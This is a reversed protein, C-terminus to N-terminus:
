DLRTKFKKVALTLMVAAFAALALAPGRMQAFAIGKLFLGRVIVLFYRAPIAYTIAQVIKPMSAIPSMFGSLMIAPLMSSIMALQMAVQQQRAVVSILLGQSLAGILFVSSMLYLLGLNGRIPVDFLVVGAAAVLTLQGLGILYYPILKGILIEIPKVPTVLLQEMTGREWERAVTLAMLIAALMAMIVAVLGPVLYWQSKLNPNFWNRAKVVVPPKLRAGLTLGQADLASVALELTRAQAVAAAFGIAISAVNADTGDVVLQATAAEGQSLTRGLGPAIVLAAKAQGLHFAQQLGDADDPRAVVTFTGTREFRSVLDRSEPTRDGDVVIMKIQDIDMTLAYGFLMLLVLPVGFAMYLTRWDRLIHQGEKRAVLFVRRLSM